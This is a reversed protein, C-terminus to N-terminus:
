SALTLRKRAVALAGIILGLYLIGSLCTRGLHEPYTFLMVLGSLLTGLTLSYTVRLKSISPSVATFSAFVISILALTIHVPLVM